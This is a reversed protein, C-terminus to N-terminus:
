NSSQTLTIGLKDFSAPKKSGAQYFQLMYSTPQNERGVSFRISGVEKVKKIDDPTANPNLLQISWDSLAVVDKNWLLTLTCQRTGSIQYNFADIKDIEQEKEVLNGTWDAAQSAAPVIRLDAALINNGTATLSNTDPRAIVRLYGQSIQEVANQPITIRHVQFSRQKGTLTQTGTPEITISSSTNEKKDGDLVVLSIEYTINRENTLTADNQPYNCVTISITVNGDNGVSILQSSFETRDQQYPNLYNSSFRIANSTDDDTTQAIAVRKVSQTTSYFAAFAAIALAAAAVILLLFIFWKKRNNHKM